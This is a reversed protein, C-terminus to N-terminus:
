LSLLGTQAVTERWRKKRGTNQDYYRNRYEYIGTEPDFERGAYQFPNILTGTSATLKGFSDYRYTNALTGAAYSLSTVSGIGDREYYSTVGSRLTALVEDIGKTRTYSALVNGSSDIEELLNPGDSPEDTATDKTSRRGVMPALIFVKGAREQRFATVRHKALM